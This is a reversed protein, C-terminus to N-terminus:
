LSGAPEMRVSSRTPAPQAQTRLLAWLSYAGVATGFPVNLLHLGSFVLTIVRGSDNGRLLLAAGFIELLAIMALVAVVIMGIGGVWEAVQREVGISAGYAGFAGVLAGIVLLLLLWLSALVIHLIAAVRAHTDIIM